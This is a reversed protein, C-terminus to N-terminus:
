SNKAKGVLETGYEKELEEQFESALIAIGEIAVTKTM